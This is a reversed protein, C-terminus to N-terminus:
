RPHRQDHKALSKAVATKRPKDLGTRRMDEIAHHAAFPCPYGDEVREPFSARSWELARAHVDRRQRMLREAAQAQALQDPLSM